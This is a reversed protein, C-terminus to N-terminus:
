VRGEIFARTYRPPNKRIVELRPKWAEIAKYAEALTM